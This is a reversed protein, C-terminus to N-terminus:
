EWVALRAQALPRYWPLPRKETLVRDSDLEDLSSAECDGEGTLVVESCM